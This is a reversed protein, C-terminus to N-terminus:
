ESLAEEVVKVAAPLGGAAMERQLGAVAERVSPDGPLEAALARLRDAFDPADPRLTRGVGLQEIRDANARQEAMQPVAIMPVGFHLAEMVGGMGAHTLFLQAHELVDLQPVSPSVEFNSPVDGLAAPDVDPGTALVVHWRTDAFAEMVAAFIGPQNHYLTGMSVLFVPRDSPPRWRGEIERPRLCPGVFHFGDDFTDGAYQFSRPVFVLHGRIGRGVSDMLEIVSLGERAALRQMRLIFWYLRLDLKPLKVYEDTLSWEDNSAFNAWCPIAPIGHRYALLRGWWAVLGDFVVLDPRNRRFWDDLGESLRRTERLGALLGRAVDYGHLTLPKEGAGPMTTEYLVPEAGVAKVRDAFEETCPYSVRHGRSVLECVLGLTPNVHGVAPPALFVIHAM